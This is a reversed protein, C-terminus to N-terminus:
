FERNEIYNIEENSLDYLQYVLQNIRNEIEMSPNQLQRTVLDIFPQQNSKSLIPVSLKEVFMPKYEFYGGNRTVGQQRIFYDALSSNLIALLYSSSSVIMSSPANIFIGKDVFCYQAKLNLNGWM